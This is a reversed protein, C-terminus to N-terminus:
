MGLAELEMEARRQDAERQRNTRRAPLKEGNTASVFREFAERTTYTRGGITIRELRHGRVGRLTWRWVTSVHVSLERALTNIPIRTESLLASM